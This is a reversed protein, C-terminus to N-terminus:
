LFGGAAPRFGERGHSLITSLLCYFTSLLSDSSTMRRLWDMCQSRSVYPEEWLSSSQMSIVPGFPFPKAVIPDLLLEFIKM